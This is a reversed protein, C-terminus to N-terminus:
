HNKDIFCRVGQTATLSPLHPRCCLAGGGFHLAWGQANLSLGYFDIYEGLLSFVKNDNM